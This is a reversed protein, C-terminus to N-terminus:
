SKGKGIVLCLPMGEKGIKQNRFALRYLFYFVLNVFLCPHHYPILSLSTANNWHFCLFVPLRLPICGSYFRIQDGIVPIEQTFRVLSFTPIILYLFLSVHFTGTEEPLKLHPQFCQQQMNSKFYQYKCQCLELLTSAQVQPLQIESTNRILMSIWPLHLVFAM